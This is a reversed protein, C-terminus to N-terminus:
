YRLSRDFGALSTLSTNYAGLSNAAAQGASPQSGGGGGGGGGLFGLINGMGGSGAGAGAGAGGGMLGGIGGALGGVGGLALGGVSMGVDIVAQNTDKATQIMSNIMRGKSLVDQARLDGLGLTVQNRQARNTELANIVDDGSLGGGPGAATVFNLAANALNSQAIDINQVDTALGRLINIRNNKLAEAGQALGLAEAQRQRELLLGAEGIRNGLLGALAGGRDLGFGTAAGQELGAAVLEGQFSSPLRSGLELKEEARKLFAEELSRLRPSEELARETVEDAIRRANSVEQPSLISMLQEVAADRVGALQPDAIRLNELRNIYEERDGLNAQEKYEDIDISRLKKLAAKQRDIAKEESKRTNYSQAIDLPANVIQGISDGM